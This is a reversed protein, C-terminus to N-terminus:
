MKGSLVLVPKSTHFEKKLVVNKEWLKKFFGRRRRIVCLLDPNHSQFHELVGQFVTANETTTLKSKIELLSADVDNKESPVDHTIVHLLNLKASFINVLDKLPELVNEKEFYGEKFALLITEFKRFIYNKPLILLPIETQKVLKGTIKGLYIEDKIEISQPSVIMLDINLKKSIRAIGEFPDGKIPKAIVEVGSTNVSSLVENLQAINEDLLLQNVKTLGAVKSFEKYVNILYVSAGTISALKIAYNLNNIGNDTSGVPVLIKRISM